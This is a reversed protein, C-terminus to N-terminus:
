GEFRFSTPTVKHHKAIGTLQNLNSVLDGQNDSIVPNFM